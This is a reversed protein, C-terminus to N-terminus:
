EEKLRTYTKSKFYGYNAYIIIGVGLWILFRFWTLAPLSVMLMVAFGAGLFPVLPVLPTRFPRKTDPDTKRL